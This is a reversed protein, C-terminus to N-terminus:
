DPKVRTRGDFVCWRIACDACRGHNSARFRLVAEKAVVSALTHQLGHKRLSRRHIPGQGSSVTPTCRTGSSTTRTWRCVPCVGSLRLCAGRQVQGEELADAVNTYWSLWTLWLRKYVAGTVLSSVETVPQCSSGIM